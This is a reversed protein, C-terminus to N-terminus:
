DDMWAREDALDADAARLTRRGGTALVGTKAAREKVGGRPKLGAKASHAGHHGKGKTKAALPKGPAKM